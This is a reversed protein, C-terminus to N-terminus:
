TNSYNTSRGWSYPLPVLQALECKIPELSIILNQTAFILLFLIFLMRNSVLLMKDVKRLCPIFTPSSLFTRHLFYIFVRSSCKYTSKESYTPTSRSTISRSYAKVIVYNGPPLLSCHLPLKHKRLIGNICHFM